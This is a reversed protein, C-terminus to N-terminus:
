RRRSRDRYAREPRPEGSLHIPRDGAVKRRCAFHRGTPVRRGYDSAYLSLVLLPVRKASVTLALPHRSAAPAGTWGSRGSGSIQGGGPGRLMSRVGSSSGPLGRDRCRRGARDRGDLRRVRNGPAREGWSNHLATAHGRGHTLDAIGATIDALAGRRVVPCLRSPHRLEPERM